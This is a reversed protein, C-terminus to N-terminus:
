CPLMNAARSWWFASPPFLPALRDVAHQFMTREGVLKLAQKPRNQRSLPWLRTGSGGAMILAYYM